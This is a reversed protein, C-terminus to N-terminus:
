AARSRLRAAPWARRRATATTRVCSRQQRVDVPVTTPFQDDRCRAAALALASAQADVQSAAAVRGEAGLGIQIEGQQGVDHAERDAVDM